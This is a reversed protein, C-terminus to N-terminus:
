QMKLKTQSKNMKEVKKWLLIQPVGNTGEVGYLFTSELINKKLKRDSKM